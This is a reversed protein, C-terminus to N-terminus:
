TTHTESQTHSCKPKRASVQFYDWALHFHEDLPFAERVLLWSSEWQECLWGNAQHINRRWRLPNEIEAEPGWVKRLTMWEGKWVVREMSHFGSIVFAAVAVVFSAAKSGTLESKYVRCASRHVCISYQLHQPNSPTCPPQMDFYHQCPREAPGRGVPAEPWEETIHSHFITFFSFFVLGVYVTCTGYIM